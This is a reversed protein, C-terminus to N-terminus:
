TNNDRERYGYKKKEEIMFTTIKSQIEPAAKKDIKSLAVFEKVTDIHITAWGLGAKVNLDNFLDPTISILYYGWLLRKQAILIRQNTLAVVCSSTFEFPLDNKQAPFAYSVTESPSLHQEIVLSHKKIRFCITLPYKKLFKKVQINVSSM